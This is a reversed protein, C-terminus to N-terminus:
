GVAKKRVTNLRYEVLRKRQKASASLAFAFSHVDLAPFEVSIRYPNKKISIIYM